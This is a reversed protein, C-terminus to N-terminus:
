DSININLAGRVWALPLPGTASYVLEANPEGLCQCAVTEPRGAKIAALALYDDAVVFVDGRPYVWPQVPKGSQWNAMIAKVVAQGDATTEPRFMPDFPVLRAPSVVIGYVAIGGTISAESLLHQFIPDPPPAFDIPM